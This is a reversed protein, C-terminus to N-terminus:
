LYTHVPLQCVLPLWNLALWGIARYASIDLSTGAPAALTSLGKESDKPTYGYGGLVQASALAPTSPRSVSNPLLGVHLNASSNGDHHTTPYSWASMTAHSGNSSTLWSTQSGLRPRPVEPVPTPERRFPDPEALTEATPSLPGYPSPLPPVPPVDNVAPTSGFWFSSKAPVSPHSNQPRGHHSTAHTRHTSFSWASVSDCRSRSSANSTIWSAGDRLADVEDTTFSPRPKEEMVTAPPWSDDDENLVALNRKINLLTGILCLLAVSSLAAIVASYAALGVFVTQMGSAALIGAIATSTVVLVMTPGWMMWHKSGFSVSRALRVHLLTLGLIVLLCTQHFTLSFWLRVSALPSDAIAFGSPGGTAESVAEWTFVAVAILNLSAL